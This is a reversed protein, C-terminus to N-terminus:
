PIAPGLVRNDDQACDKTRRLGVFAFSPGTYEACAAGADADYSWRDWRISRLVLTQASRAGPFHVPGEDPAKRPAFPRRNRLRVLPLSVAPSADLMTTCLLAAVMITKM